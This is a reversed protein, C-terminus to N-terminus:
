TSVKATDIKSHYQHLIKMAKEDDRTIHVNNSEIGLEEMANRIVIIEVPSSAILAPSLEVLTLKYM